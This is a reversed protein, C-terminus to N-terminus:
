KLLWRYDYGMANIVHDHSSIITKIYDEDNKRARIALDVADRMVEIIRVLDSEVDGCSDISWTISEDIDFDLTAQAKDVFYGNDSKKKDLSYILNLQEGTTLQISAGKYDLSRIMPESNNSILILMNMAHLIEDADPLRNFRLMMLEHTTDAVHEIFDIIRNVQHKREDTNFNEDDLFIWGQSNGKNELPLYYSFDGTKSNHVISGVTTVIVTLDYSNKNVTHISTVHLRPDNIHNIGNAVQLIKTKHDDNLSSKDFFEQMIDKNNSDKKKEYYVLTHLPNPVQVGHCLSIIESAKDIYNTVPSSLSLVRGDHDNYHKKMIILVEGYHNIQIRHHETDMTYTHDNNETFAFSNKFFKKISYPSKDTNLKTFATELGNKIESAKKITYFPTM